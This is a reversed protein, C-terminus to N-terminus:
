PCDHTIQEAAGMQELLLNAADTGLTELAAVGGVAYHGIAEFMEPLRKAVREVHSNFQRYIGGSAEALERLAEMPGSALLFLRTGTARLQKATAIAKDLDGYFGDGMIVVAEVPAQQAEHLAAELIDGIAVFCGCVCHDRARDMLEALDDADAAWRTAVYPRRTHQVGEAGYYGFRVAIPGAALMDLQLTKLQDWMASGDDFENALAVIVRPRDDDM